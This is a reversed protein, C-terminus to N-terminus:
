GPAAIVQEVADLLDAVAFPKRVHRHTMVEALRDAYPECVTLLILRLSRAWDLARLQGALEWCEPDPAALDLVLLDPLRSPQWGHEVHDLLAVLVAYGRRALNLHILALSVGDDSVVAVTAGDVTTELPVSGESRRCTGALTAPRM